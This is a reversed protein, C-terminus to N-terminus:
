KRVLYYDQRPWTRSSECLSSRKLLNFVVHMMLEENGKFSFDQSNEWRVIEKEGLDFPYRDLAKDICNAISCISEKQTEIKKPNVNILLMNIFNFLSKVESDINKYATYLAKYHPPLIYPINIGSAQAKQYAEILQLLYNEIGSATSGISRLPTRLEHAISAGVSEILQLKNRQCHYLNRKM